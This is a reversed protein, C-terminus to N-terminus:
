SFFSWNKCSSLCARVREPKRKWSYRTKSLRLLSLTFVRKSWVEKTIRAQPLVWWCFWNKLAISKPFCKFAISQGITPILAPAIFQPFTTILLESFLLFGSKGKIKFPIPIAFYAITGCKSFFCFFGSSIFSIM